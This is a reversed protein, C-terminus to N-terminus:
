LEIFATCHYSFEKLVFLSEEFVQSTTATNISNWFSSKEDCAYLKNIKRLDILSLNERQGM